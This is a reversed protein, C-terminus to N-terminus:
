DRVHECNAASTMVQIETIDYNKADTMDSQPTSVLCVGFNFCIDDRFFLRNLTLYVADTMCIKSIKVPDGHTEFFLQLM